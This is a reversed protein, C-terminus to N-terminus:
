ADKQGGGGGSKGGGGGQETREQQERGQKRNREGPQDRDTNAASTGSATNQAVEDADQTQTQRKTTQDAM